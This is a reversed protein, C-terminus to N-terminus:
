LRAAYRIDGAGSQRRASARGRQAAPPHRLGRRSRRRPRRRCRCRRAAIARDHRVAGAKRTSTRTSCPSGGSSARWTVPEGGSSRAARPRGNWRLVSLPEDSEELLVPPRAPWFCSVGGGHGLRLARPPRELATVVEHLLLCQARVFGPRGHYQPHRARSSSGTRSRRTPRGLVTRRWFGPRCSTSATSTATSSRPQVRIRYRWAANLVRRLNEVQQQSVRDPAPQFGGM